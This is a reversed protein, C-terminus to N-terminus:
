GDLMGGAISRRVAARSLKGSGTRPLTGPPVLTVRAARVGATEWLRRVVERRVRELAEGALATEAVIAVEE